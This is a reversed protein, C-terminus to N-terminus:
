MRTRSFPLQSTAMRLVHELMAGFARHSTRCTHVNCSVFVAHIHRSTAGFARCLDLDNWSPLATSVLACRLRIRACVQADLRLRSVQGLRSLVCSCRVLPAFSLLPGQRARALGDRQFARSMGQYALSFGFGCSM